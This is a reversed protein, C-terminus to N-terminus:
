LGALETNIAAAAVAGSSAAFLVQQMRSMLDGAAFVGKVTTQGWEDTQIHGVENIECGLRAPLDSHQHPVTRVFIAERKLNTGDEFLINGDPEVARIPTTITPLDLTESSEGNTCIIIDNSLTSLLTAVHVAAHGSSIVAIAKDRAEWGHCYPCHFVRKGWLDALGEIAPLKDRVGTALLIKKAEHQTGDDLHVV